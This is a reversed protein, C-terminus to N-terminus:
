GPARGRGCEPCGEEIRGDLAYGCGPCCGRRRRLAARLRGPAALVLGWVAAFLATDVLVGRWIPRLPLFVRGRGGRWLLVNYRAEEHGDRFFWAESAMARAPWGTGGTDVRIVVAGDQPLAAWAPLESAPARQQGGTQHVSAQVWDSLAITSRWVSYMRGGREVFVLGPAPHSVVGYRLLVLAPLWALALTTAVGLVLLVLARVAARRM